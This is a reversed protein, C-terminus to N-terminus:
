AASGSALHVHAYNYTSSANADFWPALEDRKAYWLRQLNLQSTGLYDATAVEEGAEKRARNEDWSAQVLALLANYAFRAGGVHSRLQAVQEPTPDIAYRYAQHVKPSPSGSM